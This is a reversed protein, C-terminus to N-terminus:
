KKKKKKKSAKNKSKTPKQAPTGGAQAAFAAPVDVRGKGQTNPDLELDIASSMLLEKVEQPTIDPYKAKILAAVGACHPTAMSTGSAQTYYKDIVTGM